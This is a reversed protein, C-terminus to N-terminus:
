KIIVRHYRDGEQTVFLDGILFMTVNLSSDNPANNYYDALHKSLANLENERAQSVGYFETANRVQTIKYM